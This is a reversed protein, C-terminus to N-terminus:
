SSAHALTIISLKVNECMSLKSVCAEMTAGTTLVDDIVAIHKGKITEKDSVEFADKVNNWRQEKNKKTQTSTHQTRKIIDSRFPIQLVESMGQALLDSQNYGRIRKKKPHLPISTIIDITEPIETDQLSYAMEKGLIIALQQENEYKINHILTQLIGGKNFLYHSYAYELKVRGWFIENITDLKNKHYNTKPIKSLCLKCIYDENNQLDMGCYTCKHPIFLRYFDRLITSFISMKTKIVAYIYM